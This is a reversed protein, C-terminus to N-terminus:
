KSDKTLGSNGFASSSFPVDISPFFVGFSLTSKPEGGM